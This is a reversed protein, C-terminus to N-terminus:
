ILFPNHTSFPDASRALFFIALSHRQNRVIPHLLLHITHHDFSWKFIDCTKVLLFIKLYTPTILPKAESEMVGIDQTPRLICIPHVGFAL